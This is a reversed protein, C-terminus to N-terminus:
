FSLNEEFTLLIKDVHEKTENYGGIFKEDCFIIPFTKCEKQSIKQIFELFEAKAEILYEDCDVVNFILKKDKLFAKVNLCNPCGSKSYITYGNKEPLEFDINEVEM